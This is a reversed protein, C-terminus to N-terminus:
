LQLRCLLKAWDNNVHTFPICKNTHIINPAMNLFVLIEVWSIQQSYIDIYVSDEGLDFNEVALM